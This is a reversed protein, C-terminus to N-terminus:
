IWMPNMFVIYNQVKKTFDLQASHTNQMAEM